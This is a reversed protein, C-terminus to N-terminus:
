KRYIIYFYYQATLANTKIIQKGLLEYKSNKVTKEANEFENILTNEWNMKDDKLQFQSLSNLNWKKELNSFYSKNTECVIQLFADVKQGNENYIRNIFDKNLNGKVCSKIIDKPFNYKLEMTFDTTQNTCISFDITVRKRTEKNKYRPHEALARQSNNAQKNYFEVLSNRIHSEHKQNPFNSLNIKLREIFENSEITTKVTDIFKRTNVKEM